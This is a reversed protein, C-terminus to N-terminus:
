GAVRVTRRAASVEGGGTGLAVLVVTHEGAALPVAGHWGLAADALGFHAAVDRREDGGALPVLTADDIVLAVTRFAGGSADVGWGAAHLIAPVDASRPVVELRDFWLRETVAGRRANPLVILEFASVRRRVRAALNVAWVDVPHFGAQLDGPLAAAFDVGRAPAGSADRLDGRPALEAAFVHDAVTVVIADAADAGDTRCWGSLLPTAGQLAFAHSATLAADAFRDVVGPAAVGDDRCAAFVAAALADGGRLRALRARVVGADDGELVLRARALQANLAAYQAFGGEAFLSRGLRPLSELQAGCVAIIYIADDADDAGSVRVASAEEGLPLLLSGAVM